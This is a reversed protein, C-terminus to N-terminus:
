KREGRWKNEAVQKFLNDFLHNQLQRSCDEFDYKFHLWEEYITSALYNVGHTFCSSCIYIEGKQAFGFITPSPPMIFNLKADTIEPELRAVLALASTVIERDFDTLTYPQFEPPHLKNLANRISRNLQPHNRLSELIRMFTPNAQRLLDVSGEIKAEINNQELLVARINEASDSKTWMALMTRPLFMPYKLTRDETLDAEKIAYSFNSNTTYIKVGRYFILGSRSAIIDGYETRETVLKQNLFVNDHEIKEIEGRVSFVTDAVIPERSVDGGEDKANSALERYAMEIDWNKGLEITFGLGKENMWVRSFTKGRVIEERATFTYHTEGVDLKVSHGTRLLIAIAYKLGTGFYGIPNENEKVSLGMIELFAMDLRGRNHFYLM